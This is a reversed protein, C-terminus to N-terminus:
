RSRCLDSIPTSGATSASRDPCPRRRSHPRKVKGLSLSKTTRLGGMNEKRNLSDFTISLDKVTTLSSVAALILSANNMDEIDVSLTTLNPYVPLHRLFKLHGALSLSSLSEPYLTSLFTTVWDQHKTGINSLAVMSLKPSIALM